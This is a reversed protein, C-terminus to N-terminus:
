RVSLIRPRARDRGTELSVILPVRDPMICYIDIEVGDYRSPINRISEDVIWGIQTLCVVLIKGSQVSPPPIPPSAPSPSSVPSPAACLGGGAPHPEPSIEALVNKGRERTCLAVFYYGPKGYDYGRLRIPKRQPPDNM